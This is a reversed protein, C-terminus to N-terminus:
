SNVITSASKERSIGSQGKMQYLRGFLSSLMAALFFEPKRMVWAYHIQFSDTLRLRPKAQM